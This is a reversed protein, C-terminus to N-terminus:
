SMWILQASKIPTSASEGHAHDRGIFNISYEIGFFEGWLIGEHSEQPSYARHDPWNAKRIVYVIPIKESFVFFKSM